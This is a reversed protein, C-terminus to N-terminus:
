GSGDVRPEQVVVVTVQETGDSLWGASGERGRISYLGAM